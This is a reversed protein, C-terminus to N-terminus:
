GMPVTIEGDALAKKRAKEEKLKELFGLMEKKERAFPWCCGHRRPSKRHEEVARDVDRTHHKRKEVM